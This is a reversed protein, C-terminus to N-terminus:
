LKDNVEIGKQFNKNLSTQLKTFNTYLSSTFLCLKNRDFIHNIAMLLIFLGLSYNITTIRYLLNRTCFNNTNIPSSKFIYTISAIMLYYKM